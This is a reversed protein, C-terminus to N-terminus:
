LAHVISGCDYSPPPPCTYTCYETHEHPETVYGGGIRTLERPTLQRVTERQLHLTKRKM